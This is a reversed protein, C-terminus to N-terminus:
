NTHYNKPHNPSYGSFLVTLATMNTTETTQYIHQLHKKVTNVSINLSAALEKQSVNGAFDSRHSRIGTQKVARYISRVRRRVCGSYKCKKRQLRYASFFFVFRFASYMGVTNWSHCFRFSIYAYDYAKFIDRINKLTIQTNVHSM